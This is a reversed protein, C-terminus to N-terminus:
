DEVMEGIERQQLLPNGLPSVKRKRGKNSTQSLDARDEYPYLPLCIDVQETRNRSFYTICKKQVGCYAQVSTTIVTPYVTCNLVVNIKPLNNEKVSDYLEAKLCHLASPILKNPAFM